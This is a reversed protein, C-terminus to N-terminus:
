LFATDEKERCFRYGEDLQKQLKEYRNCSHDYERVNEDVEKAYDDIEELLEDGKRYWRNATRFDGIISGVHVRRVTM